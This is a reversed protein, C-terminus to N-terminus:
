RRTSQKKEIKRRKKLILEHLGFLPLNLSDFDLEESCLEKIKHTLEPSNGVDTEGWCESPVSGIDDLKLIWGKRM